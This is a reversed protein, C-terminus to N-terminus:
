KPSVRHMVFDKSVDVFAVTDSTPDYSGRLSSRVVQTRMYSAAKVETILITNEALKYRCTFGFNDSPGGAVFECSGDDRLELHMSASSDEAVWTGVPGRPTACSACLALISITAISAKMVDLSRTSRSQM